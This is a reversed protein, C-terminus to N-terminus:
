ALPPLERNPGRQSQCCTLIQSWFTSAESGNRTTTQISSYFLTESMQTVRQYTCLRASNCPKWHANPNKTSIVLPATHLKTINIKQFKSLFASGQNSGVLKTIHPFDCDKRVERRNTLVPIHM